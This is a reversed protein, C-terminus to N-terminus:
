SSQLGTTNERDDCVYFMGDMDTYFVSCKGDMLTGVPDELLIEVVINKTAYDVECGLIEHVECDGFYDTDLNASVLEQFSRHDM